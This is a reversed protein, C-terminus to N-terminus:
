TTFGRSIREIETAVEHLGKRSIWSLGKNFSLDLVQETKREAAEIGGFFRVTAKYTLPVTSDEGYAAISTDFFTRIEYNPPMSPIGNKLLPLKSFDEGSHNILKPELAIRVNTAVSRGINKIVFYIVHEGTPIEFYTVVYPASEQDRSQKMEGLTMASARAAERIASAIQWTKVVYVVLAILSLIQTIALVSDIAEKSM